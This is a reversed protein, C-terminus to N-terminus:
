QGIGLRRYLAALESRLLPYRLALAGTMLLCAVGYGALAPQVGAWRALVGLLLAGLPSVGLFSMMYISAVRARLREDVISQLVTNVGAATVIMALGVVLLAPIAVFLSPVLAFVILAVAGLPGMLTVVRALGWISRRTSLMATGLLAGLGGMSTLLGQLQAGGGFIDRAFVPMMSMHPPLTFSTVLLTSLLMRAPRCRWVWTFGEVLEHVLGKPVTGARSSPLAFLAPLVALYSVANVMFCGGEGLVALLVGAVAPGVFRGLNMVSSNLAIANPLNERGGVMVPLLAQRAPADFSWTLGYVLSIAVIHEVRLEGSYSLVALLLAQVMQTLQTALAVLRRDFRDVLVGAFPSVVLMPFSSAFAVLGLMQPSGTMRYVTWSLAVQQTWFGIISLAQGFLFRRFPRHELSRFADIAM